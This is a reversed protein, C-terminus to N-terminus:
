WARGARGAPTWGASGELAGTPAQSRVRLGRVNAATIQTEAPNFFLRQPGSAYTPWEGAGAASAVAVGALLLAARYSWALPM